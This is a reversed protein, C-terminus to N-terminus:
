GRIARVDCRIGAVGSLKADATILPAGLREALAIYAADYATANPALEGIRRLLPAVPHVTLPMDALREMAAAFAERDLHGGLHLGRLAHAAEIRLHEPALLQDADILASAIATSLPRTVLLDVAASADIVVDM